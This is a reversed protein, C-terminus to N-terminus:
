TVTFSFQFDVDQIVTKTSELNLYGYFEHVKFCTHHSTKTSELNLYGYFKHFAFATVGATKTSELNLYGYFPRFAILQFM